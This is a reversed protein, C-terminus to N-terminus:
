QPKYFSATEYMALINELPADIQIYTHSPGFVYGGDKGLIDILGKAHAEVDSNGSQYGIAKM